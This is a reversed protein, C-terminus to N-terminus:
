IFIQVKAFMTYVNGFLWMLLYFSVERDAHYEKHSENAQLSGLFGGDANLNSCRHHTHYVEETLLYRVNHLPLTSILPVMGDQHPIEIHVKITNPHHEQSANIYTLSAKFSQGQLGGALGATMMTQCVGNQSGIAAPESRLPIGHTGKGQTPTAICRVWFHRAFFMSELVKGHSSAFNTDDSLRYFPTFGNGGEAPVAVEWSYQISSINIGAEACMEITVNSGPYNTECPTVCVLPHGPSAPQKAYESANLYYPLSVVVPPAPLIWGQGDVRPVVTISTSTLTGLQTNTLDEPRLLLTFTRPEKSKSNHLLMVEVEVRFYFLFCIM